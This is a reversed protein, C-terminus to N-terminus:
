VPYESPSLFAIYSEGFLLIVNLSLLIVNPALYYLKLPSTMDSGTAENPQKM